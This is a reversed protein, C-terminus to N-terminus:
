GWRGAAGTSAPPAAGAGVAGGARPPAAPPPWRPSCRLPAHEGPHSHARAPGNHPAARAAQPCRRAAQTPSVSPHLGAPPLWARSARACSLGQGTRGAGVRKRESCSSMSYQAPRSRCLSSARSQSARSQSVRSQRAQASLSAAAPQASGADRAWGRAWGGVGRRRCVRQRQRHGGARAVTHKAPVPPPPPHRVVDGLREVKQVGLAHHVTLTSQNLSQTIRRRRRRRSHGATTAAKPQSSDHAPMHERSPDGEHQSHRGPQERGAEGAVGARRLGARRFVARRFVARRGMGVLGAGLRLPRSSCCRAASPRRCRWAPPRRAPAGASPCRGTLTGPPPCRQRALGAEKPSRPTRQVDSCLSFVFLAPSPASAGGWVSRQQGDGRKGGAPDSGLHQQAAPLAGCGHVDVGKSTLQALPQSDATHPQAAPPPRPEQASRAGSPMAHMSVLQGKM